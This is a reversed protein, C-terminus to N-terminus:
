SKGMFRIVEELITLATKFDYREILGSLQMISRDHGRGTLKAKLEELVDTAEADNDELLEKLRGILLNIEEQSVEPTEKTEGAAGKEPKELEHLTEKDADQELTQQIEELVPEKPILEDSIKINKLTVEFISGRNAESEITIEGNMLDILRKVVSLGLGLGGFKRIRSGDQQKFEDFVQGIFEESIGVGTDEVCIHFDLVKKEMNINKTFASITIGGTHTFKVANSLLNLLVHRLRIEDFLLVEPMEPDLTIKFDLSKNVVEISVIRKLKNLFNSVNQPSYGTEQEMSKMQSMTVLDNIILLLNHASFDIKKIYRAAEPEKYKNSLVRSFGLVANLPTRLEHSINALFESKAKESSEAAEKAKMLDATREQVRAELETNLKELDLMIKHLKLHTKVRALVVSPRIPKTIYDAAGLEFGKAEDHDQDLATIFIVPINRTTVDAKLQRCVEYGDMEPMMIDLLILQPPQESRAAKLAQPGNTAAMIKYEDMLLGNLVNINFREDDVILIKNSKAM